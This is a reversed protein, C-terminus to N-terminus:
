RLVTIRRTTRERGQSASLLYVGPSLGDAKFTSETVGHAVGHFETRVQRGQLDFLAVTAEADAPWEVTMSARGQVPNRSLAIHPQHIAARQPTVGTTANPFVTLRVGDVLVKVQPITLVADQDPTALGTQVLANDAIRRVEYRYPVNQAVIFRQLRRPTVDTTLSDPAALIGDQTVLARTRLTVNWKLWAEDVTTEDWDVAGNINGIPDATAPDGNGFNSNTSCNTFAPYSVDKRYKYLQRAAMMPFWETQEFPTYHDRDDWFWAGGADNQQIAQFYAVKESWGTVNDNIGCFGVVPASGEHRKIRAQERGDMWQFVREGVTTPLDVDPSGWMRDLSERLGIYVDPRYGLCVKPIVSLAGAILDPHHWALFFAFSGGMSVGMAYVRNPDHPMERNAWGLLFLVRQETYDGVVGDDTPPFNYAEDLDYNENYGFYFTSYDGTPIYDDISLVWEGPMGTGIFSNFFNGGRGHGHLVLAGGAQGKIVGVHYARGMTNCMAAFLPSPANTTWLVYDEGAPSTLTRQWVPRPRELREWVATPTTNRGTILTRDIGLGIKEALVAYYNLAGVVPTIVFLGKTEALPPDTEVIRYTYTAGLLSSIRSDVASQDGVQGIEFANELAEPTGLANSSMYIHYIWGAGPLDNWTLFTQGDHFTSQLGSVTAARVPSTAAFLLTVVCVVFRVPTRSRTM